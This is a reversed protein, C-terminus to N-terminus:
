MSKDIDQITDVLEKTLNAFDYKEAGYRANDALQKRQNPEMNALFLISKSIENPECNKTEIAAGCDIAPNYPSHFDVLIPRQAALYDFMKNLSLGYKLIPSSQSHLINIDAKSTIYPIYKKDVYGKFILNDIKEEQVRRKLAQLNDGDGWVLIKIREDPIKKATDVLLTLNNVGRISGVYIVKFIASNNLDEDDIQYHEKDYDFKLLDVGNNIFRVKSKPIDKEWGQERIYDYAGEMSFVIRDAKTYIWKEIRRFLLVLPHRRSAKGYSILSEPWLDTIQAVTKCGYKRGIQIGKKCAQLTMSQAVIADPKPYHECVSELKHAFEYMNLIRSLGNGRYQHCHVLVYKVGDDIIEKYKERDAILNKESKHVTSAAFITVEHGMKMLNKAFNTNRALPYYKVPVSYHDIIWIKM